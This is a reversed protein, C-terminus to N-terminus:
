SLAEAVTARTKNTTRDVAQRIRRGAQNLRYRYRAKDYWSLSDYARVLAYGVLGVAVLGLGLALKKQTKKTVYIPKQERPEMNKRMMGTLAETPVINSLAAFSKNKLGGPVVKTRGKMLAEYGARAVQVPDDLQETVRANQAGAKNFFDTATANPLLATITVPSDKLENALAQTFQYVYAKTGSYVAMLPSPVLSTMSALNLIRGEKRAVMDFLFLKTLETLSVMNLRIMASEKEWDTETAFAGYHGVGADNVLVNVFVSRQQVEQYLERGSNEQSLDKPIVTVNLNGHSERLEQALQQLKDDSRAVLILDYGDQAFLRALELGIGGSAGTILATKGNQSTM